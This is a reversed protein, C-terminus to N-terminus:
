PLSGQRLPREGGEPVCLLVINGQFRFQVDEGHEDVGHEVQFVLASSSSLPSYLRWNNNYCGSYEDGQPQQSARLCGDLEPYAVTLIRAMLPTLNRHASRGRQSAM